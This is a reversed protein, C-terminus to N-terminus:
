LGFRGKLANYNQLVESVSLARNYVRSSSLQMAQNNGLTSTNAAFGWDVPTGSWTGLSTASGQSVGNVYAEVKNGSSSFTLTLMYFSSTSFSSTSISIEKTTGGAKYKLRIYGTHQYIEINNSSNVRLSAILDADGSLNTLKVFVCVTGELVPFSSAFSDFNIADDSGDTIILGCNSSSYTPGNILSGNVGAILDTWTTGSGPYSKKNAADVAFVLGDTVVNPSYFFAM